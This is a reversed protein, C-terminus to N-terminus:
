YRRLQDLRETGLADGVHRLRQADAGLDRRHRANCQARGLHDQDVHHPRHVLDGGVCLRDLGIEHARDAGLRRREVGPRFGRDLPGFPVTRRHHPEQFGDDLFAGALRRPEVAARGALRPRGVFVAVRPKDAEGAVDDDSDPDAVVVVAWGVANGPAIDRGPQPM